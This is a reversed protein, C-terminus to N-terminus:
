IAEGIALFFVMAVPARNRTGRYQEFVSFFDYAREERSEDSNCFIFAAPGLDEPYLRRFSLDFRVPGILTNYRMGVGTSWRFQQDLRVTQFNPAIFGADVFTALKIGYAWDYRFESSSELALRGGHPLAFHSVDSPDDPDQTCLMDYPGVQDFRFGRLSTSGGLFAFEPYPVVGDEGFGVLTHGRLRAAWVLPFGKQTKRLKVPRYWRGELVASGYSSASKTLAFAERLEMHYYSGRSAFMKDDRWDL